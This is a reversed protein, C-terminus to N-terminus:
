PSRRLAWVSRLAGCRKTRASAIRVLAVIRRGHVTLALRGNDNTAPVLEMNDLKRGVNGGVDGTVSFGHCCPGEPLPQGGLMSHGDRAGRLECDWTIVYFRGSWNTLPTKISGAWVRVGKNVLKTLTM